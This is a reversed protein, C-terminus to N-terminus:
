NATGGAKARKAAADKAPDKAAPAKASKPAADGRVAGWPDSSKQEPISGLSRKYAAEAAKDDAKQQPTKEKDQEGYRTIPDKTQAYAPGALFAALVFTCFVRM